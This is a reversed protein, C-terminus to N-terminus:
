FTGQFNIGGGKGVWPQVRIATTPPKETTRTADVIAWTVGATVIAFGSLMTVLGINEQKRVRNAEEALADSACQRDPCQDELQGKKMLREGFYVGGGLAVIGGGVVLVTPIINSRKPKDPLPKPTTIAQIKATFQADRTEAEKQKTDVIQKDLHSELLALEEDTEKKEQESLSDGMFDLYARLAHFAAEHEGLERYARAIHRLLLSATCDLRYAEKWSAVAAIFNKAEYSAKGEQYKTKALAVVADPTQTQHCATYDEEAFASSTVFLAVFVITFRAIIRTM